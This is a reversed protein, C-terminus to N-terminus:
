VLDLEEEDEIIQKREREEQQKQMKSSIQLAREEAGEEFMAINNEEQKVSIAVEIDKGLAAPIAKRGIGCLVEVTKLNDRCVKDKEEM